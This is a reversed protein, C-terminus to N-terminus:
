NNQIITQPILSKKQFRSKLKGIREAIKDVTLYAMPVVFVTLMMSSTLSGVLVQNM